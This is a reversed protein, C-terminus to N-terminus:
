TLKFRKKFDAISARMTKKNWLIWRSCAGATMPKSWNEHSKHRQLYMQKRVDDHHMTYDEYGAAGFNVRRINSGVQFVATYKKGKQKSHEVLLLKPM